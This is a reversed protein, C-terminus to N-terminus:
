KTGTPPVVRHRHELIPVPDHWSRTGFERGQAWDLGFTGDATGAATISTADTDAAVAAPVKPRSKQGM